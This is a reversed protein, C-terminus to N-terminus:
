HAIELPFVRGLPSAGRLFAPAAALVTWPVCPDRIDLSLAEDHKRLHDFALGPVPRPRRAQVPRLWRDHRKCGLSEAAPPAQQVM